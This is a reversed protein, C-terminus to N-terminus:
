PLSAASIEVKLNRWTARDARSKFHVDSSPPMPPRCAIMESGTAGRPRLTTGAARCFWLAETRTHDETSRAVGLAM